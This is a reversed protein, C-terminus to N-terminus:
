HFKLHAMKVDREFASVIDKMGEGQSTPMDSSAHRQFAIYVKEILKSIGIDDLGKLNLVMDVKRGPNSACVQDYKWPRTTTIITCQNLGEYCLDHKYEDIGDLLILIKDSHQKFITEVIEKMNSLRELLPSFIVDKISSKDKVYRLPVLFLYDFQSIAEELDKVNDDLTKSTPAAHDDSRDINKDHMKVWAQLLRSCWTTKGVGAEGKLFITRHTRGEKRFIDKYSILPVEEKKDRVEIVLDTYLEDINVKLLDDNLGDYIPSLPIEFGIRKYEDILAEQLNRGETFKFAFLM